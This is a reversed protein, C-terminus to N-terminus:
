WLSVFSFPLVRHKAPRNFVEWDRLEGRGGLSITGTGIGGLPFAVEGCDGLTRPAASESLLEQRSYPISSGAASQFSQPIKEAPLTKGNLAAAGVAAASTSVLFQRRSVGTKKGM